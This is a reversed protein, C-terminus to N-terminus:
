MCISENEYQRQEVGPKSVSDHAVAVNGLTVWLTDIGVGFCVESAAVRVLYSLSSFFIM